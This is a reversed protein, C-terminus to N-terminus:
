YRPAELEGITQRPVPVSDKEHVKVDGPMESWGPKSTAYGPANPHPTALNQDGPHSIGNETRRTSSNRRRRLMFFGAAAAILALVGLAVGVGLGIKAGQSLGNSGSAEAGATSEPSTTSSATSQANTSASPGTDATSSTGTNQSWTVPKANSEVAVNFTGSLAYPPGLGVAPQRSLEFHCSFPDLAYNLPFDLSGTAPATQNYLEGLVPSSSNGNTVGCYLHLWPTSFDSTWSANLTDLYNFTPTTSPDPYLWTGNAGSDASAIRAIIAVSSILACHPSLSFRM